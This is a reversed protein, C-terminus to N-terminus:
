DLAAFVRQFDFREDIPRAPVSLRRSIGEYKGYLLAIFIRLIYIYM